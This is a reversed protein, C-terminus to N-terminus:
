ITWLQVVGEETYRAVAADGLQASQHLVRGYPISLGHDHLLEMLGRKRTKGFLSLGM